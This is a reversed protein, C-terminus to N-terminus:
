LGTPLKRVAILIRQVDIEGNSFTGSFAAEYTTGATGGSLRATGVAGSTGTTGVTIGSPTVAVAVSSLSVGPKLTLLDTWDVSFDRTSGPDKDFRPNTTTSPM